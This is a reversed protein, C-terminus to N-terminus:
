WDKYKTGNLAEGTSKSYVDFVNQGGWSDSQPDDQMSRLGWDTNGTLPDVPIHRLFRLKKGGAIEVGNVLTDMDPPYGETGLKIQFANKDAADKYREIASRMEWLARRLDIERQRRVTVKVVPVAAGMLILLITIVVIMELLTVGRESRTLRIRWIGHTAFDTRRLKM